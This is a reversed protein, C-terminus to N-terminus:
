LEEANSCNQDGEESHEPVAQNGATQMRQGQVWEEQEKGKKAITVIGSGCLKFTTSQENSTEETLSSTENMNQCTNVQPRQLIVYTSVVVPRM